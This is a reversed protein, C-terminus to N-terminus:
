RYRGAHRKPRTDSLHKRVAGPDGRESIDSMAAKALDGIWRDRAVQGLLGRASRSEIMLPHFGAGYAM